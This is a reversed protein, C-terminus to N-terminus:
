IEKKFRHVILLNGPSFCDFFNQEYILFNIRSFYQIIKLLLYIAARSVLGASEQFFAIKVFFM